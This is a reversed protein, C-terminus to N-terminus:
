RTNGKTGFIRLKSKPKDKEKNMAPYQNRTSFFISSYALDTFSEKIADIKDEKEKIKQYICDVVVLPTLRWSTSTIYNASKELLSGKLKSRPVHMHYCRELEEKLISGTGIKYSYRSRILNFNRKAENVEEPYQQSLFKKFEKDGSIGKTVDYKKLFDVYPGEKMKKLYDEVALDNLQVGGITGMFQAYHQGMELKLLQNFNKDVLAQEYGKANILYDAIIKKVGDKSGGAQQLLLAYGNQGRAEQFSPYNGPPGQENAYKAVHMFFASAAITNLQPVSLQYASAVGQVAEKTEKKEFNKIEKQYEEKQQKKIELIEFANDMLSNVMSFFDISYIDKFNKDFFGNIRKRWEERIKKKYAKLKEELDDLFDIKKYITVDGSNNINGSINESSSDIALPSAEPASSPPPVDPTDPPNQGNFDYFSNDRARKDAADVPNDSVPESDMQGNNPSNDM